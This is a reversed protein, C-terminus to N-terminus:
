RACRDSINFLYLVAKCEINSEYEFGIVDLVGSTFRTLIQRSAHM